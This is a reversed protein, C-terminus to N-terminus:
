VVKYVRGNKKPECLVKLGIGSGARAFSVDKRDIQMSAVTQEFLGDETEFLIRDGARLSRNLDVLAVQIKDLYGDCVGCIRMKRLGPLNKPASDSVPDLVPPSFVTKQRDIDANSLPESFIMPPTFTSIKPKRPKQVRKVIPIGAERRDFATLLLRKSARTQISRKRKFAPIRLTELDINSMAFNYCMSM